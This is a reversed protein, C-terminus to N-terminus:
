HNNSSVGIRPALSFVVSIRTEVEVPRGNLLFPEYHWQRVAEIAAPSLLPDGAAVSQVLVSGDKRLLVNLVVTGQIAKQRAEEPYKPAVRKTLKAHEISATKVRQFPFFETTSDWRFKGDVFFFDGITVLREDQQTTPRRWSALYEDLPGNLLDYRKASDMKEIAFDGDMQALQILLEQFEREHKELWRGYPTAWSEGKEQGFNATFWDEYNPIETEQIMSRLKLLDKRKTAELMDDLLRRLGESDNPYVATSNDPPASQPHIPSPLFLSILTGLVLGSLQGRYIM